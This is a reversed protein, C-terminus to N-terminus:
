KNKLSFIFFLLRYLIPLIYYIAPYLRISYLPFSFLISINNLPQYPLFNFPPQTVFFINHNNHVHFATMELNNVLFTKGNKRTLAEAVM